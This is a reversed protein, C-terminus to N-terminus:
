VCNCLPSHNTSENGDCVADRGTPCLYFCNGASGQVFPSGPYDRCDGHVGDDNIDNCTYGAELYAAKALEGSTLESMKEPNCTKGQAECVANCFQGTSGLVWM